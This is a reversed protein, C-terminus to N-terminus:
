NVKFKYECITCETYHYLYGDKDNESLVIIESDRMVHNCKPCSISKGHYPGFGSWTAMKRCMRITENMNYIEARAWKPPWNKQAYFIGPGIAILILLIDVIVNNGFWRFDPFIILSSVFIILYIVLNLAAGAVIRGDKDCLMLAIAYKNM